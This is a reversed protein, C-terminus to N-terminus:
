ASMSVIRRALDVHHLMVMKGSVEHDSNSIMENVAQQLIAHINAPPEGEMIRALVGSTLASDFKASTKKLWQDVIQEVTATDPYDFWIKETIRGGRLAASDLSDPNNVAIIWLIGHPKGGIGDIATLLKNTVAASLVSGNRRNAFVDDAEDIFVICPRANRARTILKDIKKIDSLLDAGAASLLPWAVTKALARVALTKGTGPPGALMLGTPVSGGLAEVKEISTMRKAIGLLGAKQRGPMHLDDLQPTDESLRDGLKGQMKKMAAQLDDFSVEPRGARIAGRICEDVVSVIRAASFGEWRRAALDCVAEPLTVSVASKCLRAKILERRAPFDPPPVQIKFDVRGERIAAADLRELFNTAMVILVGTGRTAVLETLIHNTIKPGEETSGTLFERSCIVSDVEDMFLVCPAQARADNFLEVVQETTQNIYRSAVSGFSMKIIPLGLTGALGEAILTKGNGPEGYLLIGNRCEAAITNSIARGETTLAASQQGADLLQEKLEQMGALASLDHRAVEAFYRPEVSAQEPSAEQEDKQVAKLKRANDTSALKVIEAQHAQERRATVETQKKNIRAIHSDFAKDDTSIYRTLSALLASVEIDPGKTNAEFASIVQPLDHSAVVNSPANLIEVNKGVVAVIPVIRATQPLVVNKRLVDISNKVQILANRMDTTGHETTVTWRSANAGARISGSKYKTEVAYINRKTILLHDFEVSYEQPTDKDFVMLFGHRSIGDITGELSMILRQVVEEARIGSLKQQVVPYEHVTRVAELYGALASALFAIIEPLHVGPQGWIKGYIYFGGATIILVVAVSHFSSALELVGPLRASNNVKDGYYAKTLFYIPIAIIVAAAFPLAILVVLLIGLLYGFVQM